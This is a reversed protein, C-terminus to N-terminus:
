IIVKTSGRYEEISKPIEMYIDETILKNLFMIRVDM